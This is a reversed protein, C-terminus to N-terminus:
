DLQIEIKKKEVDINFWNIKHQIPICHKIDLQRAYRSLAKNGFKLILDYESQGDTGIFAKLTAQRNDNIHKQSYSDATVALLIGDCWLSKIDNNEANAFAKCLEFELFECFDRDLM